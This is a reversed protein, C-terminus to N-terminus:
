EEWMPTTVQNLVSTQAKKEFYGNTDAEFSCYVNIPATFGSISHIKLSITGRLIREEPEEVNSHLPVCHTTRQTIYSNILSHIESPNASFNQFGHKKAREISDQWDHLEFESSVLFLYSKGNRDQLGLPISPSNQLLRSELEHLKKKLRDLGKNQK